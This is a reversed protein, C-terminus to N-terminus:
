MNECTPSPDIRVATAIGTFGFIRNPPYCSVFGSSYLVRLVDDRRTNWGYIAGRSVGLRQWGRTFDRLQGTKVVSSDDLMRYFCVYPYACAPLGAARSVGPSLLNLAASSAVVLISFSSRVRM